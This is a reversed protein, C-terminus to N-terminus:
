RNGETIPGVNVPNRADHQGEDNLSSDSHEVGSHSHDFTSDDQDIATSREADVAFNTLSITGEDGARDLVSRFLESLPADNPKRQLCWRLQELSEADRGLAQLARGAAAHADYSGPAYRVALLACEAIANQDGLRRYVNLAERLLLEESGDTVEHARAVSADAFRRAVVPYEAHGSEGMQHQLDRLTQWDPEFTNLFEAAPMHTILLRAITKQWTRSRDYARKWHELAEGVDGSQWALQGAAFDVQANFPRFRRALAVLEQQRAVNGGDLFCLDAAYLYARGECPCTELCRRIHAQARFLLEINGATARQLWERREDASEFSANVTAQRLDAVSM